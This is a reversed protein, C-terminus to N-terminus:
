IDDKCVALTAALQGINSFKHLAARAPRRRRRGPARARGSDIATHVVKTHPEDPRQRRKSAGVHENLAICGDGSSGGVEGAAKQSTCGCHSPLGGILTTRAAPPPPPPPPPPAPNPALSGPHASPPPKERIPQAVRAVQAKQPTSVVVPPSVITANLHRWTSILACLAAVLVVARLRWRM